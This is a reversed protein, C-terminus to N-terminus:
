KNRSSYANNWVPSEEMLKQLLTAIERKVREEELKIKVNAIQSQITELTSDDDFSNNM